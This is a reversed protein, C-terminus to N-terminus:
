TGWRSTAARVVHRGVDGRVSSLDVPNDNQPLALFYETLPRDDTLMMGDGVFARLEAPGAVYRSLLNAFSTIGMMDLAAKSQPSAQKRLFATEDLVLPRMAGVMLSGNEWLTTYPFVRLFTRMILKYETETGSGIWQVAIGRNHLVRQMLRYYQVSYLNGAGAHIPLIVDATIIDYERGTLLMYNRGDDVRVHVNPRQLLNQNIGSFERAARLVAPSLEVVDVHVCDSFAGVAGPTAGGGAGIVLAAQPDPHIAMPLTGIIRHYAVMGPEDSAQHMGNIYLRHIARPSFNSGRRLITVTAHGDEGRWVLMEGPYRARLLQLVPDGATAVLTAFAAVAMGGTAIAPGRGPIRTLLLVGTTLALGATLLLSTRSGLLPLLVFGTVLAGAVAGAVNVAYIVGVRQGAHDNTVDGAWIAIGIPFAMGMFLAAPLIAAASTVAMPGLYALPGGSFYPAAWGNVMGAQGIVFM